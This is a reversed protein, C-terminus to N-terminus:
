ADPTPPDLEPLDHQEIQSLMLRSGGMSAAYTSENRRLDAEIGLLHKLIRERDEPQLREALAAFQDRDKQPVAEMRKLATTFQDARMGIMTGYKQM